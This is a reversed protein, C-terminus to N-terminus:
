VELVHLVQEVQAAAAPQAAAPPLAAADSSSGPVSDPTFGAAEALLPEFDPASAYAFRCGLVHAVEVECGKMDDEKFASDAIHAYGSPSIVEAEELKATLSTISANLEETSLEDYNVGSQQREIEKQVAATIAVM